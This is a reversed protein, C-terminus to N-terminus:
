GKAPREPRAARVRIGSGQPREAPSSAPLLLVLKCFPSAAPVLTVQEFRVRGERPHDFTREGGDRSLVTQDAWSEAFAPSEDRLRDVIRRVDPDGPHHGVDARFESVLRYARETWDPILRRAAPVLHVFALLCRELGDFWEAFLDGAPGNWAVASWLPDLVYAPAVMSDVIRQLAGADIPLWTEPEAPDRREALDFLYRREAPNLHLANALRGLAEASVSVDRGQEIWTYWTPSMGCLQAM